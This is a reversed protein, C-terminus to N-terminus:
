GSIYKKYYSVIRSKQKVQWCTPWHYHNAINIETQRSIAKLTDAIDNSPLKAIKICADRYTIGISVCRKKSTVIATKHEDPKKFEEQGTIYGYPCTLDNLKFFSKLNNRFDTGAQTDSRCIKCSNSKRCIDKLGLM